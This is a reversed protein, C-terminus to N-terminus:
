FAEDSLITRLSPDADGSTPSCVNFTHIIQAKLKAYQDADIVSDDLAKKLDILQQGLSVDGLRFEQPNYEQVCGTLMVSTFVFLVRSM